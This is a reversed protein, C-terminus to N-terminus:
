RQPGLGSRWPRGSEGTNALRDLNFDSGGAANLTQVGFSGLLLLGGNWPYVEDPMGVVQYSRDFSIEGDEDIRYSEISSNPAGLWVRNGKASILHRRPPLTVGRAESGYLDSGAPYAILEADRLLWLQSSSAVWDDCELPFVQPSGKTPPDMRFIVRLKEIYSTWEDYQWDYREKTTWIEYILANGLM